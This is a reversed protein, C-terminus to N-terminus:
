NVYAAETEPAKGSGTETQAETPTEAPVLRDVADQMHGPDLHSYRLTMTITKHGLLEQVTRLPVGAMVLRSAFTHRLDHWRFNGLGAAAAVKTFWDRRRSGPAPCVLNSADAIKPDAKHIRALTELAKRAVANVQIYRTEGSKSRPITILGLEFDVDAWSLSFQEGARMGTHLALDFEAERDPQMKRITARLATEEDPSLFRTRGTSERHRKVQRVPNSEVRARQVGIRYILSLLSRWRNQTAKTRGRSELFNEIATSTISDAPQPGFQKCLLKIMSRYVTETKRGHHRKSYTLADAALEDFTARRQRFKEPLKRRQLVETKRKQYLTIAAGKPGAKEYRIRGTADAYRIWFEGSGQFREFIGRQRVQGNNM